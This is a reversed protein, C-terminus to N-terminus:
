AKEEFISPKPPVLDLTNVAVAHTMYRGVLMLVGIAESVELVNLVKEFEQQCNNGMRDMAALAFEQVIRESESLLEQNQPDLKEVSRIWDKGFGLKSSLRQHQNREYDNGTKVAITLAVTETIKDPVTKKLAETMEMFHRLVDPAHGTCKFFEGLYGLRVVRARLTDQLRPELEEMELRPIRKSM